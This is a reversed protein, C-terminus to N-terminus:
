QIEIALEKFAYGLYKVEHGTKNIFQTFVEHGDQEWHPFNFYDDLWFIKSNLGVLLL